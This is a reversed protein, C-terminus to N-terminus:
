IPMPRSIAAMIRVPAPTSTLLLSRNRKTKTLKTFAEAKTTWPLRPCPPILCRLRLPLHLRTESPRRIPAVTMSAVKIRLTAMDPRIPMPRQTSAATALRTQRWRTPTFLSARRLLEIRGPTKPTPSSQAASARRESLRSIPPSFLRPM